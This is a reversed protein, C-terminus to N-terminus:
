QVNSDHGRTTMANDRMLGLDQCSSLIIGSIQWAMDPNFPATHGGDALWVLEKRPAELRAFTKEIIERTFLADNEVAILWVPCKARTPAEARFLSDLYELPYAIRPKGKGMELPDRMGKRIKWLSLYMPLLIPMGPFRRALGAVVRTFKERHRAFPGFLTLKIAEELQPYAGSIAFVARETACHAAHALALIAGQSHGAVIIPRQYRDELWRAAALGEDLLKQFTFRKQDRALGHGALHLGCIAFGRSYLADLLTQYHAPDLMTGPYFLLIPANPRARIELVPSPGFPRTYIPECGAQPHNEM